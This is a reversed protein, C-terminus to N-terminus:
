SKLYVYLIKLVFANSFISTLHNFPTTTTHLTYLILPTLVLNEDFVCFLVINVVVQTYYKM